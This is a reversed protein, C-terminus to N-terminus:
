PSTLGLALCIAAQVRRDSMMFTHSVPLTLVPDTERIRTESVAVLGDNPEGGFPSWRGPLGRTGAIITYPVAPAPLAAYFAPSSLCAGCEGAIWRFPLAGFALRAARPPRNPTGLMVLHRPLPGRVRPLAARLLVGGLSHGIVAYDPDRAMRQIRAVLRAVISEFTEAFAAYPFSETRCGCGRLTHALRLFSVPTRGLGHVMLVRM